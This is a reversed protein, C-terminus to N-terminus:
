HSSGWAKIHNTSNELSLVEQASTAMQRCLRDNPPVTRKLSPWM